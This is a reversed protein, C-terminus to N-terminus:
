EVAEVEILCDHFRACGGLDTLEASTLSNTGKRGPMLKPWWIGESVAVGPPVDETVEVTLFCEGRQNFARCPSQDALGRRAADSPHLKLTPRGELRRSSPTDAFSTNLFHQAPPALFQLPFRAKTENDLHGEASPVFAPVAPAGRQAAKASYFEFKGSPTRLAGTRWPAEPPNVKVPRGAWLAERDRDWLPGRLPGEAVDLLGAVVSDFPEHLRAATLGLRRSLLSFLDLNSKSEGVPPIAARSLQAYQHGYGVLLDDHEFFTTAPLVIDAFDTTDTLVQEHVALFLDERALGQHVRAQEPAIAAPNSNYVYLAKVPPDRLATLAEGLRVMNVTRAPPDDAHPAELYDRNFWASSFGFCLFGGGPDDWAGTLCPLCSITRVTMGGNGHRSPGGGLRIFSARTSGYLRALAEVEAASIGTIAEVQQPNYPEAAERLAELGLTYREVFDSDVLGERLMLRMMGLTLAADTGPRICLFQDAQRATATRYTDIVIVKAGRRRAERVLPLAHIHTAVANIGWLIILRSHAIKELDSAVMVGTTIRQGEIASGTCITRALRSAGLAHFFRHGAAMQVRGITGGYSYPLIAQPGHEAIVGRFRAAIEDLAANWSVREFRGEGKRGVRRLPTLVRQASYVRELYRNVKGCLFGRTVPHEPDGVISVARGGEVGIRVSCSDPCDHPCVATLLETM